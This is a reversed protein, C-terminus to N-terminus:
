FLLFAVSQKARLGRMKLNCCSNKFNLSIQTLQLEGFVSRPFFNKFGSFRLKSFTEITAKLYINSMGKSLLKNIEKRLKNREKILFM